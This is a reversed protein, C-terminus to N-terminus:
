KLRPFLGSTKQVKFKYNELTEVDRNAGLTTFIKDATEPIFPVLMWAINYLIFVTNNMINLFDQADGKAVVWPKEDDIYKNAYGVLDWSRGLAEHLLFNDLNTSLIFSACM